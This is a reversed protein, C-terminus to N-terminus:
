GVAAPEPGRTGVRRNKVLVMVTGLVGAVLLGYDEPVGFRVAAGTGIISWVGPIALLWGPVRRTAWLLVGFTVITTPCPLGFTPGDPFAHGALAGLIPYLVLGYVLFVAGLVGYADPEFEFSLGDGIVGVGLFLLAQLVFFGGFAWAAPNIATFFVWHYAIGMWAWLFALIAAVWPDAGDSSRFALYVLATALLYFAIQVPWVAENYRLMVEMFQEATFPTQM